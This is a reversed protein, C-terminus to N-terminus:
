PRALVVLPHEITRERPEDPDPLSRLDTIAPEVFTTWETEPLDWLHSFHRAALSDALANPSTAGRTPALGEHAVTFGVDLATPVVSMARDRRAPQLQAALREFILTMADDAPVAVGSIAIARGGPRLVRYAERLVARLDGVHHLVWVYLLGDVSRDRLALRTADTVCLRRPFRHSGRVLMEFSLDCAVLDLGPRRLRETVVGTGAGVDCVLGEPLWPRLADALQTARVDGGRIEEYQAAIRSYSVSGSM